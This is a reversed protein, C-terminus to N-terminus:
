RRNRLNRLHLFSGNFNSRKASRFNMEDYEARSILHHHLKVPRDTLPIMQAMPTLFKLEVLRRQSARTLLMNIHTATQESYDIVASPILYDLQFQQNWHAQVFAHKAPTKSSCLWQSIIKVNILDSDSFLSGAQSADHQTVVSCLDAFQWDFTNDLEAGHLKINLDAWMPLIWSNRHLDIFGACRKMTTKPHLETSATPDINPIRKWWDPLFKVAREPKAYEYAVAHSTFLDLHIPRLRNLITLM